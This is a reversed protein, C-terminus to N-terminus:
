FFIGLNLSIYNSNLTANKESWVDVFSNHYTLGANIVSNGSFKYEMGAGLSIGFNFFGFESQNSSKETDEYSEDDFDVDRNAKVLFGPIVGFAGYYKSYGIEKTKLKLTIPVDLYQFRQTVKGKADPRGQVEILDSKYKGGRASVELGTAFYYNTNSIRFDTMIGYIYGIYGGDSDFGKRDISIWNYSPSFKLGFMLAPSEEDAKQTVPAPAATATVAPATEQSHAISLVMFSLIGSIILKKM